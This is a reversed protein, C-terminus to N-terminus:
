CDYATVSWNVSFLQGNQQTVFDSSSITNISIILVENYDSLKACLSVVYRYM